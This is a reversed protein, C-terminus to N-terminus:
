MDTPPDSHSDAAPHNESATELIHLHEEFKALSQKFLELTQQTENTEWGLRKMREILELQDAILRQSRSVHQRALELEETMATGRDANRAECVTRQALM